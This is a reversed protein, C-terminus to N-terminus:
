LYTRSANTYTTRSSSGVVLIFSGIGVPVAWALIGSIDQTALGSMTYENVIPMVPLNAYKPIDAPNGQTVQFDKIFMFTDKADCVGGVYESDIGLKVQMALDTLARRSTDAFPLQVLPDGDQFIRAYGRPSAFHFEVRYTVWRNLDERFDDSPKKSVTSSLKTVGNNTLVKRHDSFKFTIPGVQFNAFHGRKTFIDM